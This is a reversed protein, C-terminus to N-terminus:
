RAMLAPQMRCQKLVEEWTSKLDLILEEAHDLKEPDKGINAEILEQMIFDYLKILDYSIDYSFDLGKILEDIIDQAKQTHRNALAIERDDFAMRAMRINRLAGDYLMLVLDGPNATLISQEKYQNRAGDSKGIVYVTQLQQM